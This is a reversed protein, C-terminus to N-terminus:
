IFKCAGACTNEQSNRSIELFVKKVSCRQVVAEGHKFLHNFMSKLIALFLQSCSNKKLVATKLFRKRHSSRCSTELFTKRKSMTVLFLMTQFYPGYFESKKKNGFIHQFANCRGTTLACYFVFVLRAVVCSQM